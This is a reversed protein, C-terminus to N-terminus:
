SIKIKVKLGAMNIKGSKPEDFLVDVLHTGKGMGEVNVHPNCKKLNMKDLMEQTGLVTVAYSNLESLNKYKHNKNKGIISVDAGTFPISISTWQEIELQISVTPNASSVTIKEPLCGAVDVATEGSKNWGTLDIPIVLEDVQDLQKQRGAIIVKKPEYEIPANMDM